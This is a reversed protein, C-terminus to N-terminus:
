QGQPPAWPANGAPQQPQATPQWGGQAPAQPPQQAQQPQGPWQPAGTPAGTPQPQGPMPANVPQFQQPPQQVPATGPQPGGWGGQGQPPQAAVPQSAQQVFQQPQQVQAPQQPPPAGWQNTPQQPQGGWGQGPAQGQPAQTMQPGTQTPQGLPMVKKITNYGNKDIGVDALFPINHMQQAYCDPAANPPINLDLIGTAHCYASLRGQAIEVAQSSENWLNMNDRMQSNAFQGDCVKLTFGLYFSNPKDKVAVVNSKTIVLRYQGGPIASAGEDPKVIRANFTFGQM